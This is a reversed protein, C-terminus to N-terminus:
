FKFIVILLFHIEPSIFFSVCVTSLLGDVLGQRMGEDGKEYVM